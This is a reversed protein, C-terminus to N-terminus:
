EIQDREDIFKDQGNMLFSMWAVDHAIGDQSAPMDLTATESLHPPRCNMQSDVTIFVRNVVPSDVLLVEPQEGCQLFTDQQSIGQLISKTLAVERRLVLGGPDLPIECM